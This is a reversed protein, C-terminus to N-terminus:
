TIKEKHTHHPLLPSCEEISIAGMGIYRTDVGSGHTVNKHDWNQNSTM